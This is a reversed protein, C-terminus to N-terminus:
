FFFQFLFNNLMCKYKASMTFTFVRKTFCQWNWGVTRWISINMYFINNLTANVETYRALKQYHQKSEPSGNAEQIMYRAYFMYINYYFEYKISTPISQSDGSVYQIETHNYHNGWSERGRSNTTGTFSYTLVQLTDIGVVATISVPVTLISWILIWTEAVTLVLWM